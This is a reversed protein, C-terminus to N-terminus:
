DGSSSGDTSSTSNNTTDPTDTTDSTPQISPTDQVDGQDRQDGQDVSSVDGQDNQDGQDNDSVDAQDGQDADPTDSVEPTPSETDSPEPSVTDTPDPSETESVSPTPDSTETTILPHDTQAHTSGVLTRMGASGGLVLALGAAWVVFRRRLIRRFPGLKMTGEEDSRRFISDAWTQGKNRPVGFNV